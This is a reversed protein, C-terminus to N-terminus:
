AEDPTSRVQRILDRIRRREGQSAPHLGFQSAIDAPEEAASLMEPVAERPGSPADIEASGPPPSFQEASIPEGAPEEAPAAVVPVAMEATLAGVLGVRSAFEGTAAVFASKQSDAALALPAMAAYDGRDRAAMLDADAQAFAARGATADDLLGAMGILEDLSAQRLRSALDEGANPFIALTGATVRALAEQRASERCRAAIEAALSAIRDLISLEPADAAALEGALRKLVPLESDAVSAAINM